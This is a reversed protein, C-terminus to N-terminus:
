RIAAEDVKDGAVFVRGVAGEEERGAGVADFPGFPRAQGGNFFAMILDTYAGAVFSDCGKVVVGGWLTEVPAGVEVIEFGGVKSLGPM